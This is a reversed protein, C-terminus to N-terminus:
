SGFGRRRNPARKHEINEIKPLFDEGKLDKMMTEYDEYTRHPKGLEARLRKFEKYIEIIKESYEFEAHLRKLDQLVEKTPDESGSTTMIM